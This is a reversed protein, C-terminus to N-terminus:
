RRLGHGQKFLDVDEGAFEVQHKCAIGLGPLGHRFVRHVACESLHAVVGFSFDAAM